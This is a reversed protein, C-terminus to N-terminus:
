ERNNLGNLKNWHSEGLYSVWRTFSKTNFDVECLAKKLIKLGYLANPDYRGFMRGM